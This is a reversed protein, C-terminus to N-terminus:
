KVVLPSRLVMKVGNIRVSLIRDMNISRYAKLKRDFVTLTNKQKDSKEQIVASPDNKLYKRVGIRANMERISGDQKVFTIGFFRGNTQKVLDALFQSKSNM